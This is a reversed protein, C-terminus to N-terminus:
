IFLNMQVKKIRKQVIANNLCLNKMFKSDKYCRDVSVRIIWYHLNIQLMADLGVNNKRLVFVLKARM